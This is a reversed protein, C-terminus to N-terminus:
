SIITYLLRDSKVGWEIWTSCCPDGSRASIFKDERSCELPILEGNLTNKTKSTKKKLKKNGLQITKNERLGAFDHTVVINSIFRERRFIANPIYIAAIIKNRRSSLYSNQYDLTNAFYNLVYWQECYYCHKNKRPLFGNFTAVIKRDNSKACNVTWFIHDWLDCKKEYIKGLRYQTAFRGDM